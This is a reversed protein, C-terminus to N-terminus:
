QHNQPRPKDQNRLSQSKSNNDVKYEACLGTWHEYLVADGGPLPRQLDIRLYTTLYSLVKVVAIMYRKIWWQSIMLM